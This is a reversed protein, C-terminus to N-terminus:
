PKALITRLKPPIIASVEAADAIVTPAHNPLKAPYIIVKKFVKNFNALVTKSDFYQDAHINIHSLPLDIKSKTLNLKMMCVTTYMYTRVDNQQWLKIEFNIRERRQVVDADKMKVNVGALITYTTRILISRLIFYKLFAAPLYHSFFSAGYKFILMTRKKLKFDKFHTFGVISILLETQNALDPYKQLMKTVVVFGFSMAGITIKRNKYKLKIFTALYDALNDLNPVKDIKYFSDMGGFGPLDPMCVSGYNSLYKAVAQMRELSSHHGYVLLIERNKLVKQAPFNLVRGHLGNIVLPVIFGDTIERDTKM